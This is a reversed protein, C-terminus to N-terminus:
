PMVAWLACAAGLMFGICASVLAAGMAGQEDRGDEYGNAYARAERERVTKEVWPRFKLPAPPIDDAEGPMLHEQVEIGRAM